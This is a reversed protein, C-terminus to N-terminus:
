AGEAGDAFFPHAYVCRALSDGSEPASACSKAATIAMREARQPVPFIVPCSRPERCRASASPATAVRVARPQCKAPSGSSPSPSVGTATVTGFRGSSSGTLLVARDRTEPHVFRVSAAFGALFDEVYACSAASNRAAWLEFSRWPTRGSSIGSCQRWASGLSIDFPITTSRASSRYRSSSDTRCRDPMCGRECSLM